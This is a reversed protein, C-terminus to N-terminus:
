PSKVGQIIEDDFAGFGCARFELAETVAARNLGCFDMFQGLMQIGRGEVGQERWNLRSPVASEKRLRAAGSDGVGAGQNDAAGM